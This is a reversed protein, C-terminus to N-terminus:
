LKMALTSTIPVCYVQYWDAVVLSSGGVTGGTGGATGGTVVILGGFAVVTSGSVVISGGSSGGGEVSASTGSMWGLTVGVTGSGGAGLFVGDTVDDLVGLTWFLRCFGVM